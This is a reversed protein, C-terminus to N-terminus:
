DIELGRDGLPITTTITTTERRQGNNPGHDGNQAVDGLYKPMMVRIWAPKPQSSGGRGGWSSPGGGARRWGALCRVWGVDLGVGSWEVGGFIMKPCDPCGFTM